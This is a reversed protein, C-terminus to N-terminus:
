RKFAEEITPIVQTLGISSPCWVVPTGVERAHKIEDDTGESPISRATLVVMVDSTEIASNNVVQARETWTGKFAEHPAYVLYGSGVLLARVQERWQLYEYHEPTDWNGGWWYKIAGALIVIKSNDGVPPAADTELTPAMGEVTYPVAADSVYNM